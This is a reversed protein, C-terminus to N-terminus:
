TCVCVCWVCVCVHVCVCACVGNADDTVDIGKLMDPLSSYTENLASGLSYSIAYELASLWETGPRKDLALPGSLSLSEDFWGKVSTVRFGPSFQVSTFM